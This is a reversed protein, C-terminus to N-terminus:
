ALGTGTGIGLWDWFRAWMCLAADALESFGMGERYAVLVLVGLAVVLTYKVARVKRARSGHSRRWQEANPGQVEFDDWLPKRLWWWLLVLPGPFTSFIRGQSGTRYWSACQTWVSNELRAQLMDNYKDTAADTPAVSTLVGSRVPALLQLIHPIQSEESFLVSTHGTTTNPGQMMFFNPFGPATTGLYATPGGHADNYEKLTGRTGHVNLPYDDTVFGTGYIIVDLDVKEETETVVGDPEVHTIHDFTLRVNPRGLSKLYGQDRVIRRCGIPYTPKILHHYKPPTVKEVYDTSVKTMFKGM